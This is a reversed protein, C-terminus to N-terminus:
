IKYSSFRGGKMIGCDKVVALMTKCPTLQFTSNKSIKKIESNIYAAFTM